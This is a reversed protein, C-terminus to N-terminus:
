QNLTFTTEVNFVFEIKQTSTYSESEADYSLGLNSLMSQYEGLNGPKGPKGPEDTYVWSTPKFAVNHNIYSTGDGSALGSVLQDTVVTQSEEPMTVSDALKIYSLIKGDDVNQLKLSYTVTVSYNSYATADESSISWQFSLGNTNLGNTVTPDDSLWAFTIGAENNTANSVGGQDLTLSFSPSSVETFTDDSIYGLKLSVTPGASEDGAIIASGTANKPTSTTNGFVWTSFGAGVIALGALVPLVFTAYKNHM